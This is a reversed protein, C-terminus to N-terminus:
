CGNRHWGRRYDAILRPIQIDILPLMGGGIIVIGDQANQVCEMHRRAEELFEDRRLSQPVTPFMRRLGSAAVLYDYQEHRTEQSQLDLLQVVRREPDISTVSGRVFEMNPANLAPIDAFRTWAKPAYKECALAKPSGILHDAPRKLVDYGPVKEESDMHLCVTAM